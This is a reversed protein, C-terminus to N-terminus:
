SKIVGPWEATGYPVTAKAVLTCNILEVMSPIVARRGVCFTVSCCGAGHTHACLQRRACLPM